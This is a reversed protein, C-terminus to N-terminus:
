EEAQLARYHLSRFLVEGSGSAFLDVRLSLFGDGVNHNYGSVEYSNAKQWKSGDDSFSFTAVNAINEVRMCLHKSALVPSTGYRVEKGFKYNHLQKSDSAIGCVARHQLFAATRGPCHWATGIRRSSTRVIAM